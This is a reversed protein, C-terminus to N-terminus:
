SARRFERERKMRELLELSTEYHGNRGYANIISTYSFVSRPVGHSPMEDFVEYCKEFLGERGLVGIMITYIHENPKCWIQRQM